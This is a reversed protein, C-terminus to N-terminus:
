RLITSFSSASFMIIHAIRSGRKETLTIVKKMCATQVIQPKQSENSARDEM